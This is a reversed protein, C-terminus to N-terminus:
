LVLRSWNSLKVAHGTRVISDMHENTVGDTNYRVYLYLGIINVVSRKFTVSFDSCSYPLSMCMELQETKASFNFRINLGLFFFMLISALNLCSRSGCYFSIMHSILEEDSGTSYENVCGNDSHRKLLDYIINENKELWNLM